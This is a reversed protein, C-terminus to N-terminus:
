PKALFNRFQWIDTKDPQAQPNEVFFVQYNVLPTWAFPESVIQGLYPRATALIEEHPLDEPLCLGKAPNQLTWVVASVVGVAVQITTANQHPLVKRAEHIDLVSGTGWSNYKHGMILAGVTDAGDRIDDGLIRKKPQLEYGRCRLEHLSAITENSPLYAYHVTPRYRLKGNKGYVTLLHSITFAEGHTIIMGVFEQNPVWSRVWTNLGMRALIIQNRPGYPPVVALAPLEKEHTGWGVEVPSISEDMMGEVSWMGVFEDAEKPRNTIQTDRESCHIVKVGLEMSLRGFLEDEVYREIVKVKSKPVRGDALLRAAIDLLGKKMFHSILGPNAGHDVVATRTGEWGPKMELLKVYKRYLSKELSTRSYMEAYPDWEEVSANVYFVDNNHAWQLIDICDISWALDVILGGAEVHKALTRTMNHPTIREQCFVVGKEIWPRLVKRQDVFDIVTINKCSVRLHRMLLPLVCRGVAGYGLILIKNNFRIRM